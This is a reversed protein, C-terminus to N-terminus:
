NVGEKWFSVVGVFIGIIVWINHMLIVKTPYKKIFTKVDQLNGTAAAQVLNIVPEVKTERLTQVDPQARLMDVFLKAIADSVDTLAFIWIM